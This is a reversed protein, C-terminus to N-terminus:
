REIDFGTRGMKRQVSLSHLSSYFRLWKQGVVDMSFNQMVYAASKQGLAMREALTWDAVRELAAQISPWTTEALIGGSEAWDVLGTAQTTVTPVAASAAELNVMGIVETHSPVVVAWASSLLQWKEDGHCAGVFRIGECRPGAAAMEKLAKVYVPVEEPGAIVLEWQGQLEAHHFARILLDVGKVPHLRGLFVLRRCAVSPTQHAHVRAAADGGLANPILGAPSIRFFTQMHGHELPTIAHLATWPALLPRVLFHWYALKKFWKLRGQGKLAWPSTSGHASLVVPLGAARAALMGVVYGARWFEHIHLHTVQYKRIIELLGAVGHQPYNWRSTWPITSAQFLTVGDPAPLDIQGAAHVGVWDCHQAQWQVMQRVTSTVGTNATSFDDLIHLVRCPSSAELAAASDVPSLPRSVLVM